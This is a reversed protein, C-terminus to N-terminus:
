TCSRSQLSFMLKITGQQNVFIKDGGGPPRQGEVTSGQYIGDEASGKNIGEVTLGKNNGAEASGKSIGEETSRKNIGEQDGILEKIQQDM